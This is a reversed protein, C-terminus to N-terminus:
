VGEPPVEGKQSLAKREGKAPERMHPVPTVIRTPCGISGRM